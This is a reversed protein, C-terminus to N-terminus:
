EQRDDSHGSNNMEYLARLLSDNSASNVCNIASFGLGIAQNYIRKSPVLIHCERLWQQDCESITQCLLSLQEGSTVVFTDVGDARWQKALSSLDDANWHRQYAEFYRVKAGSQILTDGLLARGGNGRLILVSLSTTKSFVPLSLMGESDESPPQMADINSLERWVSATKEGVAVFHLDSRWQTHHENLHLQAYEVARPSVAVVVSGNPLTTLTDRLTPLDAGASFSLLPAPLAKIGAQNLSDVLAYCAPAPRVVVVTM